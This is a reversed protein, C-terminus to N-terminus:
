ADAFAPDDQATAHDETGNSSDGPLEVGFNSAIQRARATTTAIHDLLLNTAQGIVSQEITALIEAFRAAFRANIPKAFSSEHSAFGVEVQVQGDLFDMIGRGHEGIQFRTTYTRRAKEALTELATTLDEISKIRHIDPKTLATGVTSCTACRLGTVRVFGPKVQSIDSFAPEDNHNLTPLTSLRHVNLLLMRTSAEIEQDSPCQGLLKALNRTHGELKPKVDQILQEYERTTMRRPAQLDFGSAVSFSAIYDGITPVLTHFFEEVKWENPESEPTTKVDVFQRLGDQEVVSWSLVFTAKAPDLMPDPAVVTIDSMIIEKLWFTALDHRLNRM